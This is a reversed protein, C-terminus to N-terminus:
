TPTGMKIREVAVEGAPTLAIVTTRRVSLSPGMRLAKRSRIILGRSEPRRLARSVSVRDSHTWQGWKGPLIAEGIKRRAGPTVGDFWPVGGVWQPDHDDRAYILIRKQLDSLGRGM